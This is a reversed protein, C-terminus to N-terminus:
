FILVFQEFDIASKIYHVSLVLTTSFTGAFHSLKIIQSASMYYQQIIQSKSM